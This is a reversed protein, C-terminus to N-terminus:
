IIFEGVGYTSLDGFIHILVSNEMQDTQIKRGDMKANRIGCVLAILSLTKVKSDNTQLHLVPSTIKQYNAV